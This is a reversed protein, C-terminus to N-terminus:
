GSTALCSYIGIFKGKEWLRDSEKGCWTIWDSVKSENLCKIINYSINIVDHM